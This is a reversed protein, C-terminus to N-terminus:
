NRGDFLTWSFKFAALTQVKRPFQGFFELLNEAVLLLTLAVIHIRFIEFTVVRKWASDFEHESVREDISWNLSPWNWALNCGWGWQVIGPVQTRWQIDDRLRDHNIKKGRERKLYHHSRVESFFLCISYLTGRPGIIINHSTNFLVFQVIKGFISFAPFVIRAFIFLFPSRQKAM